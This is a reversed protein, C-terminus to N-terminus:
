KLGDKEKIKQLESYIKKIQEQDNFNAFIPNDLVVEVLSEKVKMSDRPMQNGIELSELWGNVQNFYDDGHLEVPFDTQKMIKLFDQLCQLAAKEDHMQAFGFIASLQFNMLVVPHLEEFNFLEAFARGRSFTESFQKPKNILLQLYNSFFSIFITTYQYIATQLTTIAQEEDGMKQQAGAILSEVPFIIRTQSGLIKLVQDFENLTLSSYAEYRSAQVILEPDKSQTRVHIFLEQAQKIYKQIEEKGPLLDAHNMLFLGMQLVFPYCSYYRRVFSRITVLVEEASKTNLSKKLTAYIRQIEHNSLQPEYALLSDITIDFYAGLLPLLTIDPYSHGTEWKSVSAKSVGLFNALEQQTVHKKKRKQMIISGIDIEM